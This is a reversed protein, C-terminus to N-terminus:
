SERRQSITNFLDQFEPMEISYLLDIPRSGTPLERFADAGLDLLRKTCDFHEKLIALALATAGKTTVEDVLGLDTLVIADIAQLDGEWSAVHFPNAGQKNKIRPDAGHLLLMQFTAKRADFPSTDTLFTGDFPVERSRVVMHLPTRGHKNQINPNAGSLILFEVMQYQWGDAAAHLLTDGDMNTYSAAAAGGERLFPVMFNMEGAYASVLPSNDSSTHPSLAPELEDKRAQGPKSTRLKSSSAENDRNLSKKTM